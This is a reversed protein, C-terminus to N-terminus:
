EGFKSVFGPRILTVADELSVQLGRSYNRVAQRFTSQVEAPWSAVVYEALPDSAAEYLAANQGRIAYDLLAAPTVKGYDIFTQLDKPLTEPQSDDWQEYSVIVPSKGRTGSVVVRTGVGTRSKNEYLANIEATVRSKEFTQKAKDFKKFSEENELEALAKKLADEKSLNEEVIATKQDDSM